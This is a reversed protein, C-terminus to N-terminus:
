TKDRAAKNPDYRPKGLPVEDDVYGKTMKHLEVLNKSLIDLKEMVWKNTTETKLRSHRKNHLM